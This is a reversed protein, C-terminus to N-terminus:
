STTDLLRRAYELLLRFQAFTHIFREGRQRRLRVILDVLQDEVNERVIKRERIKEKLFYATILTGTRGVGAMCHILTNSPFSTELKSVLGDLTRTSIATGDPWASYHYRMIKKSTGSGDSLEYEATHDTASETFHLLKVCMDPSIIKIEGVIEPYYIDCPSVDNQSHLDFIQCTNDYVFTWFLRRGHDLLCPLQTAVFERNSLGDRVYNAHIYSGNVMVATDRPCKVNQYRSYVEHTGNTSEFNSSLYSVQQMALMTRTCLIRYWEECSVARSPSLFNGSFATTTTCTPSIHPPALHPPSDNPPAVEQISPAAATEPFLISVIESIKRATILRIESSSEFGSSSFSESLDVLAGLATEYDHLPETLCSERVQSQLASTDIEGDALILWKLLSKGVTSLDISM